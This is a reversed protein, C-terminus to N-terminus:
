YMVYAVIISKSFLDLAFTSSIIANQSYGNVSSISMM